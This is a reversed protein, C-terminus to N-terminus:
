TGAVDRVVIIKELILRPRRRSRRPTEVREATKARRVALKVGPFYRIRERNGRRERRQTREARNFIEKTLIKVVM